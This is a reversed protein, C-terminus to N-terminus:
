AGCCAPSSSSVGDQQWTAFYGYVTAWPPFDHPLHRWPVGTRDVYLIANMIQRPDHAPPRGIDVARARRQNRWATLIPEILAWRADSLDSPCPDHPTM